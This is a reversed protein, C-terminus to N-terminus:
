RRERFHIQFEEVIQNRKEKELSSQQSHFLKKGLQEVAKARSTIKNLRNIKDIAPNKGVGGTKISESM